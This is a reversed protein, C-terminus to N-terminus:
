SGRSFMQVAFVRGSSPDIVVGYGFREYNPNMLNRRHVASHMWRSQLNELTRAQIRRRNEQAIAINEAPFGRKGAAALRDSPSEGEPSYHDFYNRRLMDEAHYQAAQSLAPDVAMPVLGEAARDRNALSLALQQVDQAISRQPSLAMPRHDQPVALASNVSQGFGLFPILSVSLLVFRPLFLLPVLRMTVASEPNVQTLDFAEV